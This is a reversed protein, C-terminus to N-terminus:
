QKPEKQDIVEDAEVLIVKGELEPVDKCSIIRYYSGSITEIEVEKEGAPLSAVNSPNDEDELAKEILSDAIRAAVQEPNEALDEWTYEKIKGSEKYTDIEYSAGKIPRTEVREDWELALIRKELEELRLDSEKRKKKLYDIQNKQTAVKKRLADVTEQISM